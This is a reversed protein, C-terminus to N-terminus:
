EEARFVTNIFLSSISVAGMSHVNWPATLCHTPICVCIYNFHSLIPIERATWHSLSQVGAAPVQTQDRTLFSSGGLQLSSLLDRLDCGLGLAALYIFTKFIILYFTLM